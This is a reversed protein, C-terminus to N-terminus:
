KQTKEEQKYIVHGQHDCQKHEEESMPISKENPPVSECRMLNEFGPASFVFVIRLSENGANKISVWTYAPIFVTGGAHLERDLDAVHVRATGKEIYVIEDQGLHKHMPIEDGVVMDETGFVLHQSGNNEPSVKLTFEGPPPDRWIRREGENKELLLPKPVAQARTASRSQASRTQFVCVAILMATM